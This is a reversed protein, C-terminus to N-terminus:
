HAGIDFVTMFKRCITQLKAFDGPATMAARILPELEDLQAARDETIAGGDYENEIRDVVTLLVLSLVPYATSHELAFTAIAAIEDSHM